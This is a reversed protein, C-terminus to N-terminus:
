RTQRSRAFALAVVVGLLPLAPARQPKPGPPREDSPIRELGPDTVVVQVKQATEVGGDGLAMLVAQYAVGISAEAPLSVVFWSGDQSGGEVLEGWQHTQSAEVTTAPVRLPFVVTAGPNARRLTEGAVLSPGGGIPVDDTYEQLPLHLTSEKVIVVPDAGAVNVLEVWLVLNTGPEFAIKDAAPLVDLTVAQQIRQDVGMTDATFEGTALLTANRNINGCSYDTSNGPGPGCLYFRALGTSGGSIGPLDITLDLTGDEDTMFDLGMLLSPHMPFRWGYSRYGMQQGPGIIDPSAPGDDGEALFDEKLTNLWKSSATGSIGLPGQLAGSHFYITPHHGAPQPVVLWELGLLARAEDHQETRAIVDFRGLGGHRHESQKVLVAIAQKIAGAEVTVAAPVTLEFGRQETVADLFVTKDHTGHNEINLPFIFAGSQGNSGRYPTTSWVVVDGESRDGHQLVLPEETAASDQFSPGNSGRVQVDFGVITDGQRPPPEGEVRLMWRPVDLWLTDHAEDITPFICREQAGDAITFGYCSDITSIWPGSIHHSRDGFHIGFDIRRNAMMGGSPARVEALAVGVVIHTDTEGGLWAREIQFPDGHALPTPQGAVTPDDPDDIIIWGDGTPAPQGAVPAVLFMALLLWSQRM